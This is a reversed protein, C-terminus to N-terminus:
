PEQTIAVTRQTERAAVIPALRSIAGARQAAAPHHLHQVSVARRLHVDHEAQRVDWCALPLLLAAAVWTLPHVRHRRVTPRAAIQWTESITEHGSM